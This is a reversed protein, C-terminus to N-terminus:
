VFAGRESLMHNRDDQDFDLVVRINDGLLGSSAAEGRGM